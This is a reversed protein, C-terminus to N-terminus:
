VTGSTFSVLNQTIWTWKEPPSKFINVVQTVDENAKNLFFYLSIDTYILILFSSISHSYFLDQSIIGVEGLEGIVVRIPDTLTDRCLHEVKKKFTASFLLAIFIFYTISLCVSALM